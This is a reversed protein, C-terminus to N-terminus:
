NRTYKWTSNQKDIDTLHNATFGILERNHDV